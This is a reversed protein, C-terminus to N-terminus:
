VRSFTSFDTFKMTSAEQAKGLYNAPKTIEFRATETSMKIEKQELNAKWVITVAMIVGLFACINKQNFLLTNM